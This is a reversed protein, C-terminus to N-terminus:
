LVPQPTPTSTSITETAVAHPPPPPADDVGAPALSVCDLAGTLEMACSRVLRTCATTRTPPAGLAGSQCASPYPERQTAFEAFLATWRMSGAIFRTVATTGIPACGHSPRAVPKPDTHATSQVRPASTRISALERRTTARM